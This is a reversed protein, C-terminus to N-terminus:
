PMKEWILPTNKQNEYESFTLVKGMRMKVLIAEIRKKAFLTLEKRKFSIYYRKPSPLLMALFAGEKPTLHAPSKKFYHYAANKIGYIGPGYEICNLYVELIRAKSIAKEVKYTLIFEHFKRTITKKQSLFINKVMQQTITSAGRYRKDDLMDDLASRMQVYDLGEHQYFSWDESFIIAWKAYSSIQNLKSWNKPVGAKLEYEPSDKVKSINHPYFTKLLSVDDSFYMGVPILVILLVIVTLSLIILRTGKM